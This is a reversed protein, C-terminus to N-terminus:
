ESRARKSPPDSSASALAAKLTAIEQQLPVLADRMMHALQQEVDVEVYDFGAGVFSLIRRFVQSETNPSSNDASPAVALRRLLPFVPAADGYEDILRRAHHVALITAYRLNNSIKRSLYPSFSFPACLSALAIYDYNAILNSAATLLQVLQPLHLLTVVHLATRGDCDQVTLSCGRSLLYKAIELENESAARHLATWGRSDIKDILANGKEVLIEVVKQAGSSAAIQLCTFSGASTMDADAGLELLYSVVSPLNCYTAMYLHTSGNWEGNVDVGSRIIDLAYGDDKDYM